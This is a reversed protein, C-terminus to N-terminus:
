NILRVAISDDCDVFNMQVEKTSFGGDDCNDDEDDDNL